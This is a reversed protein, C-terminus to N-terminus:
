HGVCSFYGPILNSLNIDGELYTLNNQEGGELVFHANVMPFLLRVATRSAKPLFTFEVLLQKLNTGRIFLWYITHIPLQHSQIM